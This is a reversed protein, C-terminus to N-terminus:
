RRVVVASPRGFDRSIPLFFIVSCCTYRSSSVSLDPLNPLSSICWAISISPMTSEASSNSFIHLSISLSPPPCTPNRSNLSAMFCNRLVLCQAAFAASPTTPASTRVKRAAHPGKGTGAQTVELLQIRAISQLEGMSNLSGGAGVLTTSRCVARCDVHARACKGPGRGALVSMWSVGVPRLWFCRTGRKRPAYARRRPARPRPGDIHSLAGASKTKGCHAAPRCRGLRVAASTRPLFPASCRHYALHM